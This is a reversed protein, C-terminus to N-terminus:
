GPLHFSVMVCGAYAGLMLVGWGRTVATRPYVLILVALSFVLLMVLDAAFTVPIVFLLSNLGLIFTLNFINSGLVNGVAIDLSGKLTAAVSTALEPLSTGVAVLTFGIFFEPVSFVRAIAVASGLLLHSGAIVLFLGLVTMALSYKQSKPTCTVPDPKNGSRSLLILILSFSSLFVIGAVTDLTSRLSFLIFLGTALIMLVMDRRVDGKWSERAIADPRVVACIGLILAINAINSGIINGMGIGYNGLSFAETTVVLEPLSTGFAIITTGIFLPSLGMGLAVDKAGDVAIDAGKVLLILGAIFLLFALLM